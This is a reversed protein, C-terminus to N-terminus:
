AKDHGANNARTKKHACGRPQRQDEFHMRPPCGVSRLEGGIQPVFDGVDGAEVGRVDGHLLKRIVEEERARFNQGRVLGLGLRRHKRTLEVTLLICPNLAAEQAVMSPIATERNQKFNAANGAAFEDMIQAGVDSVKGCRTAFGGSLRALHGERQVLAPDPLTMMAVVTV